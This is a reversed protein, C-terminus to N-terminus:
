RDKDVQSYLYDFMGRNYVHDKTAKVGKFALTDSVISNVKVEKSLDVTKGTIAESQKIVTLLDSVANAKNNKNMDDNDKDEKKDDKDKDMHEMNAKLKDIEKLANEYKEKLESM